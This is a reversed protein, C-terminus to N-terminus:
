RLQAEIKKFTDKFSELRERERQVVQEPAKAAFDSSLLQELRAIQTQVKLREKQLRAREAAADVTGALELYAEVPGVVLVPWAEPKTAVSNEFSLQTADLGALAAIVAAQEKLSDTRDGAVIIARLRRAPAVNKEARLNRISRVIDQILMFAAVHPETVDEMAAPEPWRAIILTEPWEAAFESLSSDLVASRLHGWLEETVFPTFPHLMKLCLDMVRGLTLATSGRTEDHKLQDKAIEVYWDAFDSWFFDYVQRGAEGYQFTQFLRDVDRILGELRAWIWRDALTWHDDGIPAALGRARDGAPLSELAHIVFRGANWIKNAFNRNSEVKKASLSTDSGPASGVLMTFRLADTGFDDMLLLPDITNGYTKSVKRGHEDRILGHLYVTQFPAQGTFELGLMIMRAVWFFLIDYGTEMISTPYFYAYDPTKEPWGLTSFPWLGSSFWTDLV